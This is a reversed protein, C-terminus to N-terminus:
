LQRMLRSVEPNRISCQKTVGATAGEGCGAVDVLHDSSASVLVNMVM